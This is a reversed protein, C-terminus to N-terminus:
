RGIHSDNNSTYNEHKPVQYSKLQSTDFRIPRDICTLLSWYFTWDIDTLVDWHVHVHCLSWTCGGSRTVLKYHFAHCWRYLHVHMSDKRQHTAQSTKHLPCRVLCTRQLQVDYFCNLPLQDCGSPSLGCRGSRWWSCLPSLQHLLRFIVTSSTSIQFYWAQQSEVVSVGPHQPFGVLLQSTQVLM